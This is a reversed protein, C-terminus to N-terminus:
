YVTTLNTLVLTSQKSDTANFYGKFAVEQSVLDNSGGSRGWDMIQAKNLILDITPNNAGSGIVAAGQIKVQMYKSTDATWLARFTTDGFDFVLKGEISFKSNFIDTPTYAGFVFSPILGQDWTVEMSKVPIAAAGALGASTDAIKVTIDRGIFDYETGYSPSAANSSGVAGIFGAKFRVFDDMSAMLSLQNIMGNSIVEQVVSGDKAFITLSNHQPIQNVSFTHNYSGTTGNQASAVTGYVNLFMWGLADAQAIGELDGEYWQRVLRAQDSDEFKGRTGDDIVKEARPIINAVVNKIWRDAVTKATGRATEKALGLEIQRGIITAM